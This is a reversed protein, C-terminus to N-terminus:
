EALKPPNVKKPKLLANSMHEAVDKSRKRANHSYNDVLMQINAHGMQDAVSAFDMGMALLISAHTHRLGHLTLSPLKHRRIFEPFWQSITDPHMPLGNWQVFLKETENWRDKCNKRQGNWFMKYERILNMIASPVYSARKSKPTKTEDEYKGKEKTYLSTKNISIICNDFDIYNWDLGMIEARRFGTFIAIMVITKYKIEELNLAQLLEQAQDITLSEKEKKTVKPPKIRSCINENILGWEVADQLMSSILAHHHRITKESLGGPKGDKRIGDEGLMNYFQLLHPPKLDCLKKRGLVFVIREMLDKYRSTTKGRLHKDVYDKMWLGSYDKLTMREGSDYDAKTCEAVFEALLKEIERPGSGDVYKYKRIRKGRIDTGLSMSLEWKGNDLKRYNGAM